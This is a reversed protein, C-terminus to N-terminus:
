PFTDCGRCQSRADTVDVVPDRAASKSGNKRFFFPRRLRGEDALTVADEPSLSACSASSALPHTGDSPYYPM